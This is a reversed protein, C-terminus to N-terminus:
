NLEYTSPKSVKVTRQASELAKDALQKDKMFMNLTQGTVVLAFLGTAMLFQRTWAFVM